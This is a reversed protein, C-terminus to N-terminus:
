QNLVNTSNHPKGLAENVRDTLMDVFRDPLYGIMRTFIEGKKGLIITTPISSVQLLSQLGDEFYVKQDWKMQTLFPKVISHDEDADVALFVVDDTDKFRAKVAEYLPHQERCPTCWTAWFDIVVVKGLLSRLPLKDGDTSSLTFQIPDKIQANPDFQRLEARRAALQGATTDYTKLILDGLGADSGHLKRYIESMRTRDNAGETDASRLGAITFAEALAQLAEADKGAATLWRAAERAGEVSPFIAYSSQAFAIADQYQGLLGEARAQLLLARARGRDYEEKRKVVTAGGGPEFRDGSYTTQILDSFHRAHELAREAHAKDGQHLLATTVHELVQLNNPDRSLVSEGFTILRQDDNLDIATKVLARELEARQPSNPYEKLHNEIALEFEVPSNGAEGLAKQLSAQEPSLGQASLAGAALFILGLLTRM